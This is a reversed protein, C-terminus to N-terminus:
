VFESVSFNSKILLAPSLIYDRGALQVPPQMFNADLSIGYSFAKVADIDYRYPSNHMISQWEVEKSPQVPLWSVFHSSIYVHYEAIAICHM